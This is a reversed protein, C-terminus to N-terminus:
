RTDPLLSDTPTDFFIVVHMSSLLVETMLPPIYYEGIDM